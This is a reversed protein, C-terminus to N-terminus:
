ASTPGRNACAPPSSAAGSQGGIGGGWSNSGGLRNPGSSIAAMAILTSAALDNVDQANAGRAAGPNKSVKHHGHNSLESSAPKNRLSGAPQSQKPKLGSLLAQFINDNEAKKNSKTSQTHKGNTEVRGTNGFNDVSVTM